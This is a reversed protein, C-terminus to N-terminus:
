KKLGTPAQYGDGLLFEDDVDHTGRAPPSMEFVSHALGSPTLSRRRQRGRSVVSENRGEGNRSVPRSGGPSRTRSADRYRGLKADRYRAFWEKESKKLFTEICLDSASNQATLTDLMEEFEAYYEGSTDNFFQDVKQLKLDQRDGVVDPLSLLSSNRHSTNMFAARPFALGGEPGLGPSSIGGNQARVAFSDVSITSERAGRNSFYGGLTSAISARIPSSSRSGGGAWPAGPTQLDPSAALERLTPTTPRSPSLGGSDMGSGPSLMSQPGPGQDLYASTSAPSSPRTISLGPSVVDLKKKKAEKTHIRISESHLQDLQKVWQAVPFRQKASWARMLARKSHRNM